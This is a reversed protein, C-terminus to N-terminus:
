SNIITLHRHRHKTNKFNTQTAATQAIYKRGCSKIYLKTIAFEHLSIDSKTTTMTEAAM